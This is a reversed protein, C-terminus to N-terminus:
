ISKLLSLALHSYRSGSPLDRISAGYLLALVALRCSTLIPPAVSRAISGVTAIASLGAVGAGIVLVKCPPIKGAATTQGTMFRGFHNSAELVAKYGAINAMSSLADFTQARSIRPIMDMAFSTFGKERMTDILPKSRDIHPYMFSIITKGPRFGDVFNNVNSTFRPAENASPPNGATLRPPRVKLIIDSDTWVNRSNAMTAGASEYEHIPFQAGFGAGHEILIRKFGKKLLLETNKPTMAVRREGPLVETPVGITLDSYPIAEVPQETHLVQQQERRASTAHLKRKRTSPRTTTPWQNALFSRYSCAGCLRIGPTIM